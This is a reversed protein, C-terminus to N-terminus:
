LKKHQSKERESQFNRFFIDQEVSKSKTIKTQCEQDGLFDSFM